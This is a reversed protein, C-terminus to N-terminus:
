FIEKDKQLVVLIVQSSQDIIRDIIGLDGLNADIAKFGIVEHYYFKNGTLPPLFSVPLYLEDGVLALAEEESTIDQLIAIASNHSKLKLDKIAFPILEENVDIFVAELNAYQDIDDVDFFFVLNGTYGSTKTIKGLFYFDKKDM